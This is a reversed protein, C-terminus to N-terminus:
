QIGKFDQFWNDHDVVHRVLSRSSMRPFYQVISPGRETSDELELAPLPNVPLAVLKNDLLDCCGDPLDRSCIVITRIRSARPITSLTDLVGQLRSATGLEMRVLMLNPFASLDLVPVAWLHFDLVEITRLSSSFQQWRIVGDSGYISFVKLCSIDFPCQDDMLWTDIDRVTGIRLSELTRRTCGRHPLPGSSDFSGLSCYFELHRINPSCLDWIQRFNSSEQFYATITIRRLTPRSLLEKMAIGVSPPVPSLHRIYVSHLHTFPFECIASFTEISLERWNLHLQHIHRILHPTQLIQQLRCWPDTSWPSRTSIQSFLQAQAASTWSRSVLACAKLDTPSDCLFEICQDLLEQIQLPSREEM